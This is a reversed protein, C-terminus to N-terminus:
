INTIDIIRTKGSEFEKMLKQLENYMLNEKDFNDEEIFSSYSFLEHLSKIFSSQECIIEDIDLLRIIVSFISEASITVDQLRVPGMFDIDEAIMASLRNSMNSFIRARSSGSLGKMTISLDANCIDRLIRQISKDDLQILTYDLLKVIFYGRDSPNINLPGECLQKVRRMNIEESSTDAINEKQEQFFVEVSEPCLSLLKKELIYPNEGLQISLVGAQLVLYNLGDYGRLRSAICKALCIEEVLNPETGDVILLIMDKLYKLGNNDPLNIVNSELALLGETRAVHSLHSILKISNFLLENSEHIDTANMCHEMQEIESYRKALETYFLDRM